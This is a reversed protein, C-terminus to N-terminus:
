SPRSDDKKNSFSFAKMIKASRLRLMPRIMFANLTLLLLVLIGFSTHNKELPPYSYFTVENIRNISFCTSGEPVKGNAIIHRYSEIESIPICDFWTITIYFIFFFPIALLLLYYSDWKIIM